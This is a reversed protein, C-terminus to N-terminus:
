SSSITKLIKKLLSSFPLSPLDNMPYWNGTLKYPFFAQIEKSPLNQFSSDFYSFKLIGKKNQPILLKLIYVHWQFHSFVHQVIPLSTEPLKEAIDVFPVKMLGRLLNKQNEKELYIEEKQNVFCLAYSYRITRPKVFGSSNIFQPPNLAYFCKKQLPCLHCLPQRPKCVMSGLDMFSQALHDWSSFNHMHQCWLMAIEQAKKLRETKKENFIGFVRSFIRLVNGDVPIIPFNFAIASIAASTYSGIGQYKKWEDPTQPWHPWKSALIQATQHLRVARNYYGLGSWLTLVEELSASALDFVTPFQAIFRLFYPQVAPVTTQQLMIESLWVKYPDQEQFCHSRWPLIRQHNTYWALIKRTLRQFDM